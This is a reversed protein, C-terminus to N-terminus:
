VAHDLWNAPYQQRKNLVAGILRVRARALLEKTRQAVERPIREAEVVLLVGDLLGALRVASTQEVASPLDFVVLDFGAKLAELVGALDAADFAAAPDGNAKGASLVSLNRVPSGQIMEPLRGFGALAECLGPYPRVGFMRHVKPRALHCDVLLVRHRGCSAAAAALCAAVTTVGEGSACSTLGLTRLLDAAGRDPWPLRCLLAQCQRRLEDPWNWDGDGPEANTRDAWGTVM